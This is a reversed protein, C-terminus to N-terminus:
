CITPAQPAGCPASSTPPARAFRVGAAMAAGPSSRRHLGCAYLETPGKGWVGTLALMHRQGAQAVARRRELTADLRRGRGRLRRRRCGVRRRLSAHAGPAGRDLYRSSAAPDRGAPERGLGRRTGALWRQLARRGYCTREPRSVRTATRRLVNDHWGVGYVVDPRQRWLADSPGAREGEAPVSTWRGDRTREHIWGGAAFVQTGNGWIRSAARPIRRRAGRRAM